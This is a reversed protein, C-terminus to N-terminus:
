RRPPGPQPNPPPPGPYRRPETGQLAPPPPPGPDARQLVDNMSYSPQHYGEGYYPARYGPQATAVYQGNGSPLGQPQQVSAQGGYGGYNPQEAYAALAAIRPKLGVRAQSEVLDCLINATEVLFQQEIQNSLLLDNLSAALAAYPGEAM